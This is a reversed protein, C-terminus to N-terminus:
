KVDAWGNITRLGKVGNHDVHFTFTSHARGDPCELILRAASGDGEM